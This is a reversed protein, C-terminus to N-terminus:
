FSFKVKSSSYFGNLDFFNKWDLNLINEGNLLIADPISDVELKEILASNQLLLTNKQKLLSCNFEFQNKQEFRNLNGIFQRNLILSLSGSIPKQLPIEISCKRESKEKLPNSSFAQSMLNEQITFSLSSDVKKLFDTFGKLPVQEGDELIDNEQVFNLIKKKHISPSSEFVKALDYTELINESHCTYFSLSMLGPSLSGFYTSPYQNLTSDIMKKYDGVSHTIIILNGVSSQQILENVSNLTNTPILEWKLQTSNFLNFKSTLNKFQNEVILHQDYLSENKFGELKEKLSAYYGYDFKKKAKLQRCKNLDKQRYLKNFIKRQKSLEKQLENYAEWSGSSKMKKIQDEPPALSVIINRLRPLSAVNQKLFLDDSTLIVKTAPKAMYGPNLTSVLAERFEEAKFKPTKSESVNVLYECFNDDRIEDRWPSPASHPAKHSLNAGWKQAVNAANFFATKTKLFNKCFNQDKESLHTGETCFRSILANVLPVALLPAVLPNSGLAVSYARYLFFFGISTIRKNGLIDNVGMPSITTAAGSKFGVIFRSLFRVPFTLTLNIVNTAHAVGKIGGKFVSGTSLCFNTYFQVIESKPDELRELSKLLKLHDKLIKKERRSLEEVELAATTDEFAEKSMQRFEDPSLDSLSQKAEEAFHCRFSKEHLDFSPTQAKSVSSYAVTLIISLLLSFKRWKNLM